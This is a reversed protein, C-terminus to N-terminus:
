RSATGCSRVLKSVVDRDEPRPGQTEPMAIPVCDCYLGTTQEHLLRKVREFALSFTMEEDARLALEDKTAEMRM